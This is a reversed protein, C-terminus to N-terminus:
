AQLGADPTQPSLTVAERAPARPVPRAAPRAQVASDPPPQVTETNLVRTQLPGWKQSEPQLRWVNSASSVLLVFHLVLMGVGLALLHQRKPLTSDTAVTM